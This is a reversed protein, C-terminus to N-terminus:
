YSCDWGGAEMTTKWSRASATKGCYKEDSFYGSPDSCTVCKRCSTLGMLVIATFGALILLTKKM